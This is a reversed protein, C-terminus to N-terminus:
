KVQQELTDSERKRLAEMRDYEGYVNQKWRMREEAFQAELRQYQETLKSQNKEREKDIAEDRETLLKQRIEQVKNDHEQLIQEKM